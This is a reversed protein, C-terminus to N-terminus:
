LSTSLPWETNFFDLTRHSSVRDRDSQLPCHSLCILTLGYYCYDLQCTLHSVCMKDEIMEYRPTWACVNKRMYPQIFCHTKLVALEEETRGGTAGRTHLTEQPTMLLLHTTHLTILIGGCMKVYLTLHHHPVAAAWDFRFFNINRTYDFFDSVAKFVSM